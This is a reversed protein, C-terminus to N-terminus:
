KQEQQPFLQGTSSLRHADPVLEIETEFPVGGGMYLVPGFTAMLDWLQWESFGTADDVANSHGPELRWLEGIESLHKRGLATLKVRVHHNINFSATARIYETAM